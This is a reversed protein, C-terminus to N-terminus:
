EDVDKRDVEDPQVPGEHVQDALEEPLADGPEDADPALDPAETPAAPAPPTEEVPRPEETEM